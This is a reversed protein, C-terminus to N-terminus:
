SRSPPPVGLLLYSTYILLGLLFACFGALVVNKWSYRDSGEDVPATSREVRSDLGSITDFDFSVAFRSERSSEVGPGKGNTNDTRLPPNRQRLQNQSYVAVDGFAGNRIKSQAADSLVSRSQVHMASSTSTTDVEDVTALTPNKQFSDEVDTHGVITEVGNNEETEMAATNYEGSKAPSTRCKKIVPSPTQAKGGEVSKRKTPSEM